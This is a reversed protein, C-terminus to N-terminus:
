HKSSKDIVYCMLYLFYKICLTGRFNLRTQKQHVFVRYPLREDHPVFHPWQTVTNDHKTQLGINGFSEGNKRLKPGLITCLKM